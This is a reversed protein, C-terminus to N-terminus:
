EAMEMPKAFHCDELSFAMFEKQEDFGEHLLINLEQTAINYVSTHTTYRLPTDDSHWYEPNEFDKKSNATLQAFEETQKFEDNRYLTSAPRESSAFEGTLYNESQPDGKYFTTYWVKKMLNAM